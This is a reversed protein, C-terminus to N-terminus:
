LLSGTEAFPGFTQMELVTGAKGSFVPDHKIKKIKNNGETTVMIKTRTTKNQKKAPLFKTNRKKLQPTFESHFKLRNKTKTKQKQSLSFRFSLGISYCTFPLLTENTGKAGFM